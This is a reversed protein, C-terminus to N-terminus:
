CHATSFNLKKHM